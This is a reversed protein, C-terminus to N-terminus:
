ASPPSAVGTGYRELLARLGRVADVAYEKDAAQIAMVPVTDDDALELSAWAAGDDFRVARVIGWPLRYGGVINKVRVGWDDAEVRPRAVALIGAAILLGLIVM